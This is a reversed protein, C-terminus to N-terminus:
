TSTNDRMRPRDHLRWAYPHTDYCAWTTSITLQCTDLGRLAAYPIIVFYRWIGGGITLGPAPYAHLASLSLDRLHFPGNHMVCRTPLQGLVCALSAMLVAAYFTAAARMAASRRCAPLLHWQVSSVVHPERASASCAAYRCASSGFRIPITSCFCTPAQLLSLVPGIAWPRM